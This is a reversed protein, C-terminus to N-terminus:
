FAYFSQHILQLDFLLVICQFVIILVFLSVNQCLIYQRSKFLLLTNLCQYISNRMWRTNASSLPSISDM